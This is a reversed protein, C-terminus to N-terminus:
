RSELRLRLAADWTIPPLAIEARGDAAVTVKQTATVAGSQTEWFEVTWTGPPLPLLLRADAVTPSPTKDGAPRDYRYHRNQVWVLARSSGALGYVRLPPGAVRWPIEYGVTIWDHGTDEVKVKHRGAPLAIRYAKNYQM